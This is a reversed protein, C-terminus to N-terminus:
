EEQQEDHQAISDEEAQVDRRTDLAEGAGEDSCETSRKTEIDRPGVAVHPRPILTGSGQCLFRAIPLIPPIIQPIM